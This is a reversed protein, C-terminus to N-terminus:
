FATCESPRQQHLEVAGRLTSRHRVGHVVIWVPVEVGLRQAQFCARGGQPGLRDANSVFLALLGPRGKDHLSIQPRM